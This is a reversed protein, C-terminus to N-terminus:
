NVYYLLHYVVQILNSLKLRPRHLVTDFPITHPFDEKYLTQM